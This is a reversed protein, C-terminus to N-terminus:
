NRLKAKLKAIETAILTMADEWEKTKFEVERRVREIRESLATLEDLSISPTM